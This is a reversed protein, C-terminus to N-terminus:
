LTVLQKLNRGDQRGGHHVTVKIQSGFSIRIKVVAVSFYSLSAELLYYCVDLLSAFFLASWLQSPCFLVILRIGTHTSFSSAM